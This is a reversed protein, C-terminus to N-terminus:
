RADEEGVLETLVARLRLRARHLRQRVLAVDIGLLKATEESDLGELDGKTDIDRRIKDLDGLLERRKGLRKADIQGPLKLNRM